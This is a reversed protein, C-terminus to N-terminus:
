DRAEARRRPARFDNNATGRHREKGTHQGDYYEPVNGHPISKMKGHAALKSQVVNFRFGQPKPAASTDFIRTRMEPCDAKASTTSM